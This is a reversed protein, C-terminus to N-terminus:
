LRSLSVHRRQMRSSAGTGQRDPDGHTWHAFGGCGEDRAIRVSGRKKKKSRSKHVMKGEMEMMRVTGVQFCIGVSRRGGWVRNGRAFRGSSEEDLIGVRRAGRQAHFPHCSIRKPRYTPGEATTSGADCAFCRARSGSQGVKGEIGDIRCLQKTARDSGHHWWQSIVDKSNACKLMKMHKRFVEASVSNTESESTTSRTWQKTLLEGSELCEQIVSMRREVAGKVLSSDTALVFQRVDKGFDILRMNKTGFM